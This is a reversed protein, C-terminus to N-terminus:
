LTAEAAGLNSRGEPSLHAQGEAYRSNHPQQKATKSKKQGTKVSALRVKAINCCSAVHRGKPPPPPPISPVNLPAANLCCEFTRGMRHVYGARCVHM